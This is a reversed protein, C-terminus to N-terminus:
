LVNVPDLLLTKEAKAGARKFMRDRGGLHSECGDEQAEMLVQLDSEALQGPFGLLPVDRQLHSISQSLVGDQGRAEKRGM